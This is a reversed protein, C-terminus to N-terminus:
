FAVLAAQDLIAALHTNQTRVTMSRKLTVRLSMGRNRTISGGERM